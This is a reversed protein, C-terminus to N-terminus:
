KLLLCKRVSKDKGNVKLKYFYIGSATSKGKDDKSNWIIQHYGKDFKGHALTRVKQGKINYVTLEVKSEKPISFSITTSPNFPNPYNQHLSFKYKEPMTPPYQEPNFISFLLKRTEKAHHIVSKPQLNSFKGSAGRGNFGAEIYTNGIDIVAYCSDQYSPNNLLVSEYNVIATDYEEQERKSLNYYCDLLKTFKESILSDQAVQNLYLEYDNWSGNSKEICTFLGSIALYAESTEPYIEIIDKFTLEANLYDQNELYIYANKIMEFQADRPPIYSSQPSELVPIISYSEPPLLHNYIEEIDTTGWYNRSARLNVDPNHMEIYNDPSTSYIDNYGNNIYPLSYDICIGLTNNIIGNRFPEGTPGLDTLIPSSDNFCAIGLTNDRIINEKIVPSSSYVGIGTYNDKILCNEFTHNESEINEYLIAYEANEIECYKFSSSSRNLLTIGSWYQNGANSPQAKFIIPRDETGEAIISGFIILESEEEPTIITGPIITLTSSSPLEIQGKIIIKNSWIIDSNEPLNNVRTHYCSSNQADYCYQGWEINDSGEIFDFSNIVNGYLGSSSFLELREDNGINTLVVSHFTNECYHLNNEIGNIPDIMTLRENDITLVIENYDDSDLNGSVISAIRTERELSLLYLTNQYDFIYVNQNTAIVIEPFSNNNTDTTIIDEILEYSFTESEYLLLDNMPEYILFKDEIIEGEQVKDNIVIDWVGNKNIDVFVMETANIDSLSFIIEHHLGDIIVFEDILNIAIDKYGDNNIDCLAPPTTFASSYGSFDYTFSVNCNYDYCEIHINEATDKYFLYLNQGDISMSIYNNFVNDIRFSEDISGDSTNIRKIQDEDPFYAYIENKNDQNLDGIVIKSINSDYYWNNQNNSPCILNRSIVLENNNDDLLDAAFVNSFAGQFDDIHFPFNEYQNTIIIEHYAYNNNEIREEIIDLRDLSVTVYNSGLKDYGPSWSFTIEENGGSELGQIPDSYILTSDTSTISEKHYVEVSFSEEFANPSNNFVFFSINCNLYNPYGFDYTIYNNEIKIDPLGMNEDDIFINVGPDGILNYKPHRGAKIRTAMWAEGLCYLGNSISNYFFPNLEYFGYASTLGTAGIFAIAGKDSDYCLFREAMCDEEFYPTNNNQFAGTYCASSFIVPFENDDEYGSCINEYTTPYPTNWYTAWVTVGGHGMYNIFFNSLNYLDILTQLEYDDALIWNQEQPYYFGNDIYEDPLLINNTYSDMFPEILVLGQEASEYFSIPQGVNRTGVVFTTRSRWDNAPNAELPEYNLTKTVVNEVQQTNDVSCRGIMIDPYKDPNMAGPPITLEAFFCDQGDEHTPVPHTPNNELGTDSIINVYGLKNDFTHDASGWNYTNQILFLLKEASDDTSIIQTEIDSMKVIVVNLGSYDARKDALQQIFQNNWFSHHTVILYDCNQSIYKGYPCDSFTEVWQPEETDPDIIGCNVTASLGNSNYNIMSYGCVENFLGVDENISGVVDSFTIYINLKSYAVIEQQVPNFQVPYLNIRICHQARVAGRDFLEGSYGPFYEDTNYLTNNITFQEELYTYGEPTTVEILEPAPYINISDIITSDLVAINLDIDGCEPIAIVFSVIPVEPYGVSDMRTHEPILVRQFSDIDFSNMGPITVEFEVFSNTSQMLIYEPTTNDSNDFSIWEESWLNINVVFLVLFIFYIKKM